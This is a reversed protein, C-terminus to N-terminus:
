GLRRIAEELEALSTPGEFKAAILGQADILFFWPESRLGWERVADAPVREPSGPTKYFEVHIFELRDRYQSHLKKMIEYEPGCFRSDCFGPVAFLVLAPRGREIADAITTMHFEPLPNTASDIETIESVDGLTLNRSRPAPSGVPPTVSREIVNFSIRQSGKLKPKSSDVSVEVGWNGARDFTVTTVYVGVDEGANIHVHQTGDSHTHIVQEAIGADRAPVVSKAEAEFKQVATAGSIDFFKLRVKADVVPVNNKDLIGVVFRNTGVVQESAAIVPIFDPQGDIVIVNPDERDGNGCAAALLAFLTAVALLSKTFM